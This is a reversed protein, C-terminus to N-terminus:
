KIKFTLFETLYISSSFFCTWQSWKEQLRYNFRERSNEHSMLNLWTIMIITMWVCIFSCMSIRAPLCTSTSMIFSKPTCYVPDWLKKREGDKLCVFVYRYSLHSSCHLITNRQASCRGYCLSKFFVSLLLVAFTNKVLSYLYMSSSSQVSAGAWFVACGGRTPHM